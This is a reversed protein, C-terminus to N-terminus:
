PANPDVPAETTMPEAAVVPKTAVPDGPAATPMSEPTSCAALVFTAVILVALTTKLFKM